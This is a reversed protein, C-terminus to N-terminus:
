PKCSEGRFTVEHTRRNSDTPFCYFFRHDELELRFSGTMGRSEWDKPKFRGSIVAFPPQEESRAPDAAVKANYSVAGLAAGGKYAWGNGTASEETM